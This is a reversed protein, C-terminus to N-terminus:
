PEWSFLRCELDGNWLAHEQAAKIGMAHHLELDFCIASIRHQHLKNFARAVSPEFEEGRAIRV